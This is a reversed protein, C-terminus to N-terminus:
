RPIDNIRLYWRQAEAAARHFGAHVLLESLIKVSEGLMAETDYFNERHNERLLREYQRDPDSPLYLSAADL